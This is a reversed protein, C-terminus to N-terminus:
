EGVKRGQVGVLIAYLGEVIKRGHGKDIYEDMNFEVDRANWLEERRALFKDAISKNKDLIALLVMNLVPEREDNGMDDWEEEGFLVIFHANLSGMYSCIKEAASATGEADLADELAKDSFEGNALLKHTWAPHLKEARYTSLVHNKWKRRLDDSLDELGDVEKLVALRGRVFEDVVGKFAAKIDFGPKDAGEIAGTVINHAVDLAKTVLRDTNLHSRVHEEDMGTAKVIAAIAAEKVGEHAERDADLNLQLKATIAAEYKRATAKAAEPTTCAVIEDLVGPNQKAFSWAMSYNASGLGKEGAIDKFESLLVALAAGRICKERIAAKVDEADVTRNEANAREVLPAIAAMHDKIPM